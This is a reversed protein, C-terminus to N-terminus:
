GLLLRVEDAVIDPAHVHMFHGSAVARFRAGPITAAVAAVGEPPRDGDHRGALVTVPRRQAAAIPAIDLAALMRLMQGTSVPDTTLRRLRLAAFGDGGDRISPPWARALKAALGPRQGEAEVRNAAALTAARREAPIGTAPAMALVARTRDPHAAAFSLAVTGGIACGALVAGDMREHTMLADLDAVLQDMTLPGRPKESLGCGRQDYRLIDCEGDLRDAVADWSELTGGIEHILVLPAPGRGGRMRRLAVGNVECWGPRSM